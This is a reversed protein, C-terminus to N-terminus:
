QVGQQILFFSLMMFGLMVVQVLSAIAVFHLAREAWWTRDGEQWEKQEQETAEKYKIM